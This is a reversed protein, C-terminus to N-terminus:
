RAMGSVFDGRWRSDLDAVQGAKVRALVYEQPGQSAANSQCAAPRPAAVSLGLLVCPGFWHLSHGLRRAPYSAM